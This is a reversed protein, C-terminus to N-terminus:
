CFEEKKLPFTIGQEVFRPHDCLRLTPGINGDSLRAVRTKPFLWQLEERSNHVIIRGDLTYLDNQRDNVLGYRSM